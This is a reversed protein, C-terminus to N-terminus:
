GTLFRALVQSSTAARAPARRVPASAFDSPRSCCCRPPWLTWCCCRPRPAAPPRLGLGRRFFLFLSTFVCDDGEILKGLLQGVEATGENGEGGHRLLLLAALLLLPLGLLEGLLRRVREVVRHVLARELLHHHHQPLLQGLRPELAVVHLELAVGRLGEEVDRLALHALHLQCRERLLALHLQEVVVVARLHAHVNLLHAVELVLVRLVGLAHPLRALLVHDVLVRVVLPAVGPQAALLAPQARPQALPLRGVLRLDGRQAGGGGLGERLQALLEPGREARQLLARLRLHALQAAVQQQLTLDGHVLDLLALVQVDAREHVVM